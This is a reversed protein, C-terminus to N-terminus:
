KGEKKSKFPSNESSGDSPQSLSPPESARSGTGSGESPNSDGNKEESSSVISALEVGCFQKYEATLVEKSFEATEECRLHSVFGKKLHPNVNNEICFDNVTM